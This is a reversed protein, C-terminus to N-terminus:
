TKERYCQYGVRSHVEDDFYRGCRRGRNTASYVIM